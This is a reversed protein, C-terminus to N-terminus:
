RSVGCKENDCLVDVHATGLVNGTSAHTTVLLTHAGVDITYADYSPQEKATRSLGAEAGLIYTVTTLLGMAVGLALLRGLTLRNDDPWM